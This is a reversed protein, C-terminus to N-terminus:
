RYPTGRAPHLDCRIEEYDLTVAVARAAEFSVFLGPWSAAWTDDLTSLDVALAPLDAAREFRICPPAPQSAGIGERLWRVCGDAAVRGRRVCEPRLWRDFDLPRRPVLHSGSIEATLAPAREPDVFEDVFRALLHRSRAAPIEALTVGLGLLREVADRRAARPDVRFRHLPSRPDLSM